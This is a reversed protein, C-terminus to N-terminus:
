SDLVQLMFANGVQNLDGDLVFIAPNPISSVCQDQGSKM